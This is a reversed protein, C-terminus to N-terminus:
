FGALTREVLRFADEFFFGAAFTTFAM